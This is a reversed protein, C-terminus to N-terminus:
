HVLPATVEPTTKQDMDMKLLLSESESLYLAPYSEIKWCWVSSWSYLTCSSCPSAWSRTWEGSVYHLQLSWLCSCSFFCFLQVSCATAVSLLLSCDMSSLSFCGLFPCAALCFFRHSHEKHWHYDWMCLLVACNVFCKNKCLRSISCFINMDFTLFRFHLRETTQSHSGMYQLRDPEEMWPTKWAPTSSHTAMFFEPGPFNFNHVWYECITVPFGLNFCTKQTQITKKM